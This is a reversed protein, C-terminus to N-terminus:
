FACRNPRFIYAGSKQEDCEAERLDNPVSSLNTCGGVSSNYWGWEIAFPTTVKSRKNTISSVAGTAADFNLLYYSNEVRDVGKTLTDTHAHTHTYSHTDVGKTTFRATKQTAPVPETVAKVTYTSYGVPPLRAEFALLSDAQFPSTDFSTTALSVGGGTIGGGQSVVGRNVKNELKRKAAAIQTANM